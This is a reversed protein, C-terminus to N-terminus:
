IRKKLKRAKIPIDHDIAVGPSLVVVDIEPLLDFVEDKSVRIAGMGELNEGDTKVKQSESDDYIYCKAGKSLLLKTAGIGSKSIGVVLFIDRKFYM